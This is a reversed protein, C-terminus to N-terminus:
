AFTDGEQNTTADRFRAEFSTQVSATTTDISAAAASVEVTEINSGVDLKINTTTNKNLDIAVSRVQAKTFGASTVTITYTGPLLNGLHYEGTAASKTTTEVGTADNKVAVTANPVTAGSADYITGTLDGSVSQAFGGLCAALALIVLGLLRLNTSKM